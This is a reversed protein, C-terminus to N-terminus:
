RRSTRAPTADSVRHWLPHEHRWLSSPPSGRQRATTMEQGFCDMMQGRLNFRTVGDNRMWSGPAARSRSITPQTNLRSRIFHEGWHGAFSGTFRDTSRSSRSRCEGDFSTLLSLQPEKYQLARSRGARLSWPRVELFLSLTKRYVAAAGTAGESFGPKQPSAFPFSLGRLTWPLFSRRRTVQMM